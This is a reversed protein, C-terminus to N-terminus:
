VCVCVCAMAILILTCGEREWQAMDLRGIATRLGGPGAGVVMVKLKSGEAGDGAMVQRAAKHHPQQALQDLCRLARNMRNGFPLGELKM